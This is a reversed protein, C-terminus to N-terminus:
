NRRFDLTCVEVPRPGVFRNRGILDVLARHEVQDILSDVEDQALDCERDARPGLADLRRDAVLNWHFDYLLRDHIGNRVSVVGAVAADLHHEEGIAELYPVRPSQRWRQRKFLQALGMRRYRSIRQEGLREVEGLVDFAHSCPCQVHNVSTDVRAQGFRLKGVGALEDRGYPSRTDHLRETGPRRHRTDIHM